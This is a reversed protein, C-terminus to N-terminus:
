RRTWDDASLPWGHSFVIPQGSGWDKYFLQADGKTPITSMPPVGESEISCRAHWARARRQRGRDHAIQRPQSLKTRHTTRAPAHRSVCTCGPICGGRIDSGLGALECTRVARQLLNTLVAALRLGELREGLRVVEAEGQATLPFDTAGAHQRSITGATEAHRALYVVPLTESM